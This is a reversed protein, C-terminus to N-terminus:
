SAGVRSEAHVLWQGDDGMFDREDGQRGVGKLREVYHQASFAATAGGARYAPTAPGREATSNGVPTIRV